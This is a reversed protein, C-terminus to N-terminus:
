FNITMRAGFRRWDEDTGEAVGLLSVSDNVNQVARTLVRRDSNLASSIALGAADDAARNIRQGSALREYASAM